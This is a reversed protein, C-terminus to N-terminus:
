DEDFILWFNSKIKGIRTFFKIGAGGVGEKGNSLCSKLSGTSLKNLTSYSKWELLLPSPSQPFSYFCKQKEASCFPGNWLVPRLLHICCLFFFKLGKDIYDAVAAAFGSACNKEWFLYNLYEIGNM